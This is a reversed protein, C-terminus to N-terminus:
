DKKHAEKRIRSYLNREPGDLPDDLKVAVEVYARSIEETTIDKTDFQPVRGKLVETLIYEETSSLPASMNSKVRTIESDSFTSADHVAAGTLAMTGIIFGITTKKDM